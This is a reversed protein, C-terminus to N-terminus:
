NEWEDRMEALLQATNKLRSIGFFQEPHFASNDTKEPLVPFIIIEVKESSFGDPIHILNKLTQTEIIQRIAQMITEKDFTKKSPKAAQLAELNTNKQM